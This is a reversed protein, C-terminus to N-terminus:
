MVNHRRRVGFYAAITAVVIHLLFVGFAYEPPALYTDSHEVIVDYIRSNVMTKIYGSWGWYADIFPRTFWLLWTPLALVAGSLPLQLGVVYISVLSAQETTRFFASFFLCIFSMSLTAGALIGYQMATDGPFRCFLKVMYLMVAAQLLSLVTIFAAKSMIYAGPSLGSLKEKELIVREKVIERASNNSGMLTLLIIQFMILGSALTSIGVREVTIEAQSRFSEMSMSSNMDLTLNKVEPLGKMAFVVVLCPFGLMLIAHLIVQSPARFFLKFQRSILVTWQYFANPPPSFHFQSGPKPAEEYTVDAQSPTVSLRSYLHMPTEMEYYALMDEPTGAFAKQGKNLVLVEDCTAINEVHHTVCIITKGHDRALRRFLDMFKKESEADLGSTVEDMILVPPDKL